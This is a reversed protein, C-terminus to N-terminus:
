GLILVADVVLLGAIAPLAFTNLLLAVWGLRQAWFGSFLGAAYGALLGLAAAAADAERSAHNVVSAFLGATFGLFLFFFFIGALFGDYTPREGRQSAISTAIVALVVGSGVVGLIWGAVPSSRHAEAVGLAAVIFGAALALTLELTSNFTTRGPAARGPRIRAWLLRPIFATHFEWSLLKPPAPMAPRGARRHAREAGAALGIKSARFDGPGTTDFM